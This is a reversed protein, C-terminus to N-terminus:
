KPAASAVALLLGFLQGKVLYTVRRRATTVPIIGVIWGKTPREISTQRRRLRRRLKPSPEARGEAVGVDRERRPDPSLEPSQPYVIRMSTAQAM